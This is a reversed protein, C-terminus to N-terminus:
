PSGISSSTTGRSPELKSGSSRESRFISYSLWVLAGARLLAFVQPISGAMVPVSGPLFWTLIILVNFGDWLFVSPERAELLALFPILLLNFQPAYIYTGLLYASIALACKALISIKLIYVRFLLAVSIVAGFIKAYFWTDPDQFIWIYWADELGYNAIFQYGAVFSTYNLELLPLNFVAVALAFTGLYRMRPIAGRISLLFVPLLVLAVLKTDVGLGLFAASWVPKGDLFSMVALVVFMAHFLDLNYVGYVVFSPLLFYMPNLERGLTKSIKWCSWALVAAAAMTMVSLSGYFGVLSPGLLRAAYVLLGSIVPYEFWATLYPPRGAIVWDRGWFSDVVDSYLRPEGFPSHIVASVLISVLAATIVSPLGGRSDVYAV